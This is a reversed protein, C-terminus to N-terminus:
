QGLVLVPRPSPWAQDQTQMPCSMEHAILLGAVTRVAGSCPSIQLALGGYRVVYTVESTASALGDVRLDGTDFVVGEAGPQVEAPALLVSDFTSAPRDRLYMLADSRAYALDLGSAFAVTGDPGVLSLPQNRGRRWTETRLRAVGHLSDPDLSSVFVADPQAVGIVRLSDTAREPAGFLLTKGGAQVILCPVGEEVKACRQVAFDEPGIDVPTEPAVAPAASDCAWLIFSALVTLFNRTVSM